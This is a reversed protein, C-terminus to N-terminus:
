DQEFQDRWNKNQNLKKQDRKHVLYSGICLTDIETHIFGDIAQDPSEVIPEGRVNYSTNIVLPCGTLTQFAQILEYFDPHREASVSQIRASYDVHTISPYRSRIDNVRSLGTSSSQSNSSRHKELVPAVILMYPSPHELDFIEKQHTALVAPAFPRFSERFKIKLNMKKQMEPVRPDGVISRSGLARPGFEMAGQFFGLVHGDSLAKAAAAIAKQPSEFKQYSLNKRELAKEIEGDEYRPGLLAGKMLDPQTPYFPKQFHLYYAALACGLSSGADGAAPQVWLSQFIKKELIKGNAVCNLAVGGALCLNDSGTLAKLTRCLKLVIEETAAQISSAMDMDFVRISNDSHRPGEPFLKKFKKSTMEFGTVYSFYDMNLQFSGDEKVDILEKLIIDKYKPEGYPALGM